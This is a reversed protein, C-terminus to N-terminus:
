AAFIRILCDQNQLRTRVLLSATGALLTRVAGSEDWSEARRSNALHAYRSLAVVYGNPAIETRRVCVTNHSHPPQSRRTLDVFNLRQNPLM